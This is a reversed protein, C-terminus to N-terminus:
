GLAAAPAREITTGEGALAQSVPNEARGDAIYVTPEGHEFLKRLARIKRKMRAAVKGEWAELEMESVQKVLSQPNAPDQLLGPAEILQVVRDAKLAEQLLAVVEDNETNVANGQEDLVPVTLVPTYGNELFLSLLHTNVRKPKGSLDRLMMKKGNQMVRIGRNRRAEILNGDIGSLGVASVGVKQLAEVLRKNRLGAYAMMMMDITDEDTLVSSFGSISTVTKVPKGLDEALQDRYANAGHVIVVPEAIASIDRAVADLDIAAGGGIKLIIM